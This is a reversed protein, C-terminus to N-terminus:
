ELVIVALSCGNVKTTADGREVAQPAAPRCQM